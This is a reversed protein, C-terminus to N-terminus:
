SVDSSMSKSLLSLQSSNHGGAGGATLTGGHGGEPTGLSESGNQGDLTGPPGASAAVMQPQPWFAIEIM